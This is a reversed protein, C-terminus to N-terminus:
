EGGVPMSAERGCASSLGAVSGKWLEKEAQGARRWTEEQNVGVSGEPSLESAVEAEPLCGPGRNFGM